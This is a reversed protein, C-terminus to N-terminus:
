WWWSYQSITTKVWWLFLTHKNWPLRHNPCLSVRNHCFTKIASASTFFYYTRIYWIPTGALKQLPLIQHCFRCRTRESWKCTEGKFSLIVPAQKQRHVLMLLDHKLSVPLAIDYLSVERALLATRRQPRETERFCLIRQSYGYERCRKCVDSECLRVPDLLPDM